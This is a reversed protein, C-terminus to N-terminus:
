RVYVTRGRPRDWGHRRPGFDRHRRYDGRFGPGRRHDRYGGGGGIQVNIGQAAAPAAPVATYLAFAAGAILALKKLM